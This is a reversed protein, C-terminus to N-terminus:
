RTRLRISGGSTRLTLPPGGGNLEGRFRHRNGRGRARIEPAIRLQGGSSRADLEAGAEGPFEVAISGGSTELRGWPEHSFSAAISGGSTRADVEGGADEIKIGGGSTRVELDGRIGALRVASGSTRARLDGHVDLIEIRGGTTRALVPGAVRAIEIRGGRTVAGVRGTIEEARIRGGRTEIEVNYERPIWIRVEVRPGLLHPFWSDISGDLDVDNGHHGISFTVMGAAWGRAEAQIRVDGADHTRVEVAGRDLDVFLTGGPGVPIRQDVWEESTVLEVPTGEERSAKEVCSSPYCPRHGLSRSGCAGQSEGAGRHHLAKEAGTGPM